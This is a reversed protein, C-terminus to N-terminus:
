LSNIQSQCQLFLDTRIKLFLRQMQLLNFDKFRSCFEFQSYSYTSLQVVVQQSSLEFVCELFSSFRCSAARNSHVGKTRM